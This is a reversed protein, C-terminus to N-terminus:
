STSRADFLAKSLRQHAIKASGGRRGKDGGGEEWRILALSTAFRTPPHLNSRPPSGPLLPHPRCCTVPPLLGCVEKRPRSCATLSPLATVGEPPFAPPLHHTQTPDALRRLRLSLCMHWSCTHKAAPPLVPWRSAPKLPRPLATM